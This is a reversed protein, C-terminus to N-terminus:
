KKVLIILPKLMYPYDHFEELVAWRDHLGARFYLASGSKLFTEVSTDSLQALKKEFDFPKDL